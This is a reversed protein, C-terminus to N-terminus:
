RTDEVADLEAKTTAAIIQEKIARGSAIHSEKTGVAIAYATQIEAADAFSHVQDDLLTSIKYPYTLLSPVMGINTWNIQSEISLSFQKGAHTFGEAILEGTRIDIDEYRSNRLDSLPIDVEAWESGTWRHFTSGGGPYNKARYPKPPEPVDNRQTHTAVDFQRTFDCCGAKVLNGTATEIVGNM